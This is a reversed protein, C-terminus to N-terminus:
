RWGVLFYEPLILFFILGIYPNVTRLTTFDYVWFGILTIGSSTTLVAGTMAFANYSLYVVPRFWRPLFEPIKM